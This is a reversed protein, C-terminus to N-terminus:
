IVKLIFSHKERSIRYYSRNSVLTMILVCEVADV